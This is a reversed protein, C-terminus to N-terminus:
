AVSQADEDQTSQRHLRDPYGAFPWESACAEGPEYWNTAASSSHPVDMEQENRKTFTSADFVTLVLRRERHVKDPLLVVGRSSPTV